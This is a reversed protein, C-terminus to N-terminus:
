RRHEIIWKGDQGFCRRLGEEVSVPPAWDLMTRTKAIDVELPSMLRKAMEKRGLLSALIKLLWIPLSFVRAPRGAAVALRKLIEPLSLDRGDSVLFVQNAASPHDICLAIMSILNDIGIMSRRSHISGLPLPLGMRVWSVMTAFNGKADQGYVLPPRIIVVEMRTELAIRQLGKEAEWKSMAYAGKPVPCENAVFRHDGSTCEGNVKISSIFIFRSVGMSAAQRALNITGAVNIEWFSRCLENESYQLDPVRAATHVVVNVGKLARSWDTRRDLAGVVTGFSNDRESRVAGAVERQRDSSLMRILNRGIFGTAGTVLVKLRYSV